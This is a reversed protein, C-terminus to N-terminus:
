SQGTSEKAAVRGEGGGEVAGGLWWQTVEGLESCSASEIELVSIHLLPPDRGGGPYGLRRIM